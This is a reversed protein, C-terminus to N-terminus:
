WTDTTSKKRTKKITSRKSVGFINSAYKVASSNVKLSSHPNIYKEKRTSTTDIIAM